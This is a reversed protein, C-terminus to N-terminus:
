IRLASIQLYLPTASSSGPPGTGLLSLAEQHLFNPLSGVVKTFSQFIECISSYALFPQTAPKLLNAIPQPHNCQSHDHQGCDPEDKAEKKHQHGDKQHHHEHEDGHHPAVATQHSHSNKEQGSLEVCCCFATVIPIIFAFAIFPILIKFKSGRIM